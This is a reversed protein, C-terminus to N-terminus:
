LKKGELSQLHHQADTDRPDKDALAKWYLKATGKEGIRELFQAYSRMLGSPNGARVLGEVYLGGAKETDKFHNENLDALRDYVIANSPDLEISQRWASAADGYLAMSEYLSGLHAWASPNRSDRAIVAQYYMYSKGFAGLEEADIGLALQIDSINTNGKKKEDALQKNKRVMDQQLQGITKQDLKVPVFIHSAFAAGRFSSRLILPTAFWVVGLVCLWAFLQIVTKKKRNLPKM